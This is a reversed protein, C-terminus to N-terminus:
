EKLIKYKHEQMAQEMCKAHLNKPMNESIEHGCYPCTSNEPEIRNIEIKNENTMNENRVNRQINVIVDKLVLLRM